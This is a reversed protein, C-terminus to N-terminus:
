YTAYPPPEGSHYNNWDSNAAGVSVLSASVTPPGANTASGELDLSYHGPPVIIYMRITGEYDWTPDIYVNHALWYWNDAGNLVTAYGHNADTNILNFSVSGNRNGFDDQQYSRFLDIIILGHDSDNITGVDMTDARATSLVAALGAFLALLRLGINKM